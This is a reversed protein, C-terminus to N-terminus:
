CATRTGWGSSSNRWCKSNANASSNAKSRCRHSKSSTSLLSHAGASSSAQLFQWCKNPIICLRECQITHTGGGRMAVCKRERISSLLCNKLILSNEQVCMETIPIKWAICSVVARSYPPCNFPGICHPFLATGNATNGASNPTGDFIAPQSHLCEIYIAAHFAELMTSQDHRLIHASLPLRLPHSHSHVAVFHGGDWGDMRGGNM